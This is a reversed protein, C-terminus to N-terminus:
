NDLCGPISGPSMIKTRFCFSCGWKLRFPASRYMSCLIVSISASPPVENVMLWRSSRTSTTEVSSPSTMLGPSVRTMALSPMGMWLRGYSFPLKYILTSIKEDKADEEGTRKEEMSKEGERRQDRRRRQKREGRIEKLKVKYNSM